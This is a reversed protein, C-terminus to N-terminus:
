IKLKKEYKILSIYFMIYMVINIINQGEKLFRLFENDEKAFYFMPTVRFLFFCSWMLLATAIWFTPDDTIKHEDFFSIKQYFWLLSNLIYYLTIVIGIKKDFDEGLFNTSFSIYVLSISALVYSIKKTLNFLSRIFFFEFFLICFIFYLNYQLGVKVDSDILNRTFSLWENSLTILLYFFLYNQTSFSYKRGLVYSKIFPFLLILKYIIGIIM